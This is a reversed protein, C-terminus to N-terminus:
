PYCLFLHAAEYAAGAPGDAYRLETALIDLHRVLKEADDALTQYRYDGRVVGNGDVIVFGADFQVGDGDGGGTDLYRRFGDGVVTEMTAPSGSIWSWAVGSPAATRLDGWRVPDEGADVVISVLRFDVEGFDVQNRVLEGVDAMTADIDACRDGCRVGTFAYLVIDGRVTESTFRNGEQDVLSYGPALRMRPLVQIPEFVAFAIAAGIFVVFVATVVKLWRPFALREPELRPSAPEDTQKSEIGHRSAVDRSRGPDEESENEHEVEARQGAVKRGVGVRRAAADGAGVRDVADVWSADFVRAGDDDDLDRGVGVVDLPDDGAANMSAGAGLRSTAEEGRPRGDSGTASGAGSVRLVVDKGVTAEDSCPGDITEVDGAGLLDKGVGSTTAARENM